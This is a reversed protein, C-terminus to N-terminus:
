NQLTVYVKNESVALVDQPNTGNGTSWQLATNGLRRTLFGNQPDLWQLNDAGYRNVVFVLPAGGLPQTVRVVPDSSVPDGRTVASYPPAGALDVTQVVGVGGTFDPEVVVLVRTSGVSYLGMGQPPLALQIDRATDLSADARRLARLRPSSFSGEAIWLCDSAPDFQLGSIFSGPSAYLSAALGTRAQPNWAKIHYRNERPSGQTDFVAVVAYGQSSSVPELLTVNGGFADDDITGVVQDTAPDVIDIGGSLEPEVTFGPYELGLIGQTAVYLLGDAGLRLDSVNKRGRLDIRRVVRDEAPDLVLLKATGHHSFFQDFDQLAVYVKGRAQAMLFPRPLRDPNEAFCSLDLTRLIQGNQPNMVLLNRAAVGGDPRLCDQAAVSGGDGPAGGDASGPPPLIGGDPSYRDRGQGCSAALFGLLVLSLARAWRSM